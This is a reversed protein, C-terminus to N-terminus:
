IGDDWDEEDPPDPVIAVALTYCDSGKTGTSACVRIFHADGLTQGRARVPTAYVINSDLQGWVWMAGADTLAVTHAGGVSISCVRQDADALFVVAPKRSTSSESSTGFKAKRGLRGGETNGWTIVRGDSTLAVAHKDGCALQVLLGDADSPMMAPRLTSSVSQTQGVDDLPAHALQGHDNNGCSLGHGGETLVLTSNAACSADRVAVGPDLLMLEPADVWDRATNEMGLGLQGEENSGWAFARGDESVLVSHEAGCSIALAGVPTPLGRLLRPEPEHAQWEYVNGDRAVLLLFPDGDADSMALQVAQIKSAKKLRSTPKTHEAWSLKDPGVIWTFVDGNTTLAAAAQPGASLSVVEHYGLQEINRWQPETAEGGRWSFVKKLGPPIAPPTAELPVKPTVSVLGTRAASLSASLDDVAKASPPPEAPPLPPIAPPIAPAGPVVNDAQLVASPLTATTAALAPMIAPPRPQTDALLAASNVDNAACTGAEGAGGGQATDDAPLPISTAAQTAAHTVPTVPTPPPTGPPAVVDEATLGRAARGPAGAAAAEQEEVMWEALWERVPDSHLLEQATPRTAKDKAKLIRVTLNHLDQPTGEPLMPAKKRTIAMALMAINEGKFPRDLALLEYCIVGLSWVDARGDYGEGRILEPALYYPTGVATSAFATHSSMLRSIGFDALKAVGGHKTGCLLINASKLDRHIVRLKHIHDLAEVLQAVWRRVTDAEFGQRLLKQDAIRADLAGGDGYEMLIHLTRTEAGTKKDKIMDEYSHHYKVVYKFELKRLLNIEKHTDSKQEETMGALSVRKDVMKRGDLHQLLWVVGFQGSGLAFRPRFSSFEGAPDAQAPPKVLLANAAEKATAPTSVAAISAAPATSAAARAPAPAPALADAPSSTGGTDPPGRSAETSPPIHETPAEAVAPTATMLEEVAAAIKRRAGFTKVGAERLYLLLEARGGARLLEGCAELTPLDEEAVNVQLAELANAWSM